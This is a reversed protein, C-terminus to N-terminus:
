KSDRVVRIKQSAVGVHHRITVLNITLLHEGESLGRVDLLWNFPLHAQEAETLMKDDIFVVLEFPIGSIFGRSQKDPINVRIIVQDADVSITESLTAKPYEPLTLRIQPDKDLHKPMFWHPSTVAELVTERKVQPKSKREEHIDLYYTKYDLKQNGFTIVSAAPLAYAQVIIWAMPHTSYKRLGQPDKGAWFETCLGPGRPLWNVLTNLMPGPNLGSRVLVRSAKPLVYTITDEKPKFHIESPNVKEGGSFATPDFLGRYLENEVDIRVYYAEDPVPKNDVDKGDWQIQHPGAQQKEEVLLSRILEHNPGYVKLNVSCDQSLRYRITTKQRLDPNFQWPSISVNTIDIHIPKIQPKTPESDQPSGKSLSNPDQCYALATLVLVIVVFLSYRVLRDIANESRCSM